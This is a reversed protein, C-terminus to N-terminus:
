NINLIIIFFTELPAPTPIYSSARAPKTEYSILDFALIHKINWGSGNIETESDLRSAQGEVMANSVIELNSKTIEIAKSNYHRSAQEYKTVQKTEMGSEERVVSIKYHKVYLSFMVKM